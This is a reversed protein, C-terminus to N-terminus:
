MPEVLLRPLLLVRQLAVARLRLLLAPQSSFATQATSDPLIAKKLNRLADYAYKRTNGRPDTMSTQRGLADYTYTVRTGNAFALFRLNGKADYIYQTVNGLDDTM